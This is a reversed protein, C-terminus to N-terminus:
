DIVDAERRATLRDLHECLASVQSNISAEDDGVFKIIDPDLMEKDAAGTILESASHWVIDERTLNLIKSDATEVPLARTEVM